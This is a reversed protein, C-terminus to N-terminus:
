PEKGDDEDEDEEEEVGEEDEEVKDEEEDEDEEEVAEEQEDDGDCQKEVGGDLDVGDPADVDDEKCMDVDHVHQSDYKCDSETSHTNHDSSIAVTLSAEPELYAREQKGEPDL